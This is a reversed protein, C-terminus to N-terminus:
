ANHEKGFFASILMLTVGFFISSDAVNFTPIWWLDVFDVVAGDLFGDGRFIRDALNGLAGGMVLSLAVREIPVAIKPIIVAVSVAVVIAILGIVVGGAQFSSFAAGPNRTLHFGLFDGILSISRDSLTAVAWIKTLQDLAVVVAAITM